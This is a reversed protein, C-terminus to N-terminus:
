PIDLSAFDGACNQAGSLSNETRGAKKQDKCLNLSRACWWAGVCATCGIRSAVKRQEPPHLTSLASTRRGFVIVSPSNSVVAASFFCFPPSFFHFQVSCHNPPLSRPSCLVCADERNQRYQLREREKGRTRERRSLRTTNKKHVVLIHTYTHRKSHGCKKYASNSTWMM